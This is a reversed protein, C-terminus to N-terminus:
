DGSLFALATAMLTEAGIPIAREDIAFKPHHLPYAAGQAENRVGLRFYASPRKESYFGFDDAASWGPLPLVNEEGCVERAAAKVLATVEPDNVVPPEGKIVRLTANGRHMQAVKTVVEELRAHAMERVQSNGSRVTGKIHVRDAIINYSNGGSFGTVSIILPALLGDTERSVIKQVETVISCGIAIADVGEHPKAAHASAGKVEIDFGDAALTYTGPAVAIKGVELYPDVHIGVAADIDDLIGEEVIRRGGLPETEEAPQFILCVAGRFKSRRRQLGLAAALVMATHADHGCAHMVGPNTSSFELGTEEMIPLADIDARIAIRRNSPGATGQVEVVLGTGAAAQVGTLGSQELQQRIFSQTGLEHNSLEPHRHLHRRVEIARNALDSELV